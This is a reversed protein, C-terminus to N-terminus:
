GLEGRHACSPVGCRCIAAPKTGRSRGDKRRDAVLDEQRILFVRQGKEDRYEALARLLLAVQTCRLTNAVDRTQESVYMPVDARLTGTWPVQKGTAPIEVM